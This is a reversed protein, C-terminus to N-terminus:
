KLLPALRREMKQELRPLLRDYCIFLLNAALLGVLVLVPGIPEPVLVPMLLAELAIIAANFLAFKVVLSWVKPLRELAPRAAPYWGFFGILMLSEELDVALLLGVLTIAAALLLQYAPGYRKGV